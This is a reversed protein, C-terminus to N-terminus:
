RASTIAFRSMAAVRDRGSLLVGASLCARKFPDCVHTYLTVRSNFSTGPVACAQLQEREVADNRVRWNSHVNSCAPRAQRQAAASMHMVRVARACANMHRFDFVYEGAVNTSVRRRMALDQSPVITKEFSLSAHWSEMDPPMPSIQLETSWHFNAAAGEVRPRHM